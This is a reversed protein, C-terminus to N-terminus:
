GRTSAGGRLHRLGDVVPPLGEGGEEVADVAVAGRATGGSGCPPDLCLSFFVIERLEVRTLPCELCSAREKQHRLDLGFVM